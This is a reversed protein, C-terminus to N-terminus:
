CIVYVILIERVGMKKKEIFIWVLFINGGGVKGCELKWGEENERKEM